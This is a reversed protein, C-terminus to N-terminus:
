FLSFQNTNRYENWGMAEFIKNIKTTMSRETVEQWAVDEKKIWIDDDKFALVEQPSNVFIYYYLDGKKPNFNKILATNEKARIFIPRGVYKTNGVKCPYAVEILPLNKIREEEAHIWNEIEKQSEKNLVKKILEEQFYQEYKSSSSRKMEIGKVEPEKKGNIIGYYHCTALILLQEFWGEYAFELDINDKDFIDKAWKQILSNLKETLNIKTNIFLSDTDFYIVQYGEKEIENKVYLLLERVLYATTEAVNINFLRFYKNGFVGYASNIVGKIADYKTAIEKNGPNNKKLLKLQDKLILLKKITKPLLANSNQKFKIGNIDIINELNSYNTVINAVDLNFNVIMAPYASSLDYKTIGEYVGSKLIGRAAGEFSEEEADSDSKIVKKSKNPLVVNANKAESFIVSEVIRSNMTLDEWQTKSLIRVENFYDIIGFMKNLKSMRIVDNINKNVLDESLKSFDTKSWAKEGLHKQAIADLAYSQERMSIKKFWKLMDVVSTGAPYFVDPFESIRNQHIPSIRQPFDKIRRYLYPYDFLSNWICILDYSEQFMYDVFDNLMLEEKAYNGLYFTKVLNTTGNYISIASIPYLATGDDPMEPALVEIDLFCYKIPAKLINNVRHILFNTPFKIDSSYSHISRVNKVEKPESVFMKKLPTGDYGIANSLEKSIPEYFFPYFDTITEIYQEGNDKRCFLYINKRTNSINILPYDKTM